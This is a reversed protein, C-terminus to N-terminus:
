LKRHLMSPMFSVGPVYAAAEILNYYIGKQLETKKCLVDICRTLATIMGFGM